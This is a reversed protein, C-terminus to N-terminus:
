SLYPESFTRIPVAKHRVTSTGTRIGSWDGMPAIATRDVLLATCGSLGESIRSRSCLEAAPTAGKIASGYLNGANDMLLGGQPGSGDRGGRFNHLVTLNGNRDIKFVTGKNKTGGEVAAGYLNGDADRVLPGQPGAGDPNGHFKYLVTFNGTPDVRYVTGFGPFPGLGGALTAGYFNGAEDTIV